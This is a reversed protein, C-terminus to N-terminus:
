SMALLRKVAGTKINITNSKQIRTKIRQFTKRDIGAKEAECQRISLIMKCLSKKDKFVQADTFL